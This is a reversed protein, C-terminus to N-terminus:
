RIGPVFVQSGGHTKRLRMAMASALMASARDSSGVTTESQWDSKPIASAVMHTAKEGDCPREPKPHGPVWRDVACGPIM